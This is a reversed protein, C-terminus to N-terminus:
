DTPYVHITKEINYEDDYYYKKYEVSDETYTFKKGIRHGSGGGEEKTWPWWDFVEIALHRSTTDAPERANSVKGNFVVNVTECDIKLERFKDYDSDPPEPIKIKLEGTLRNNLDKVISCSVGMDKMIQAATETMLVPFTCVYEDVITGNPMRRQERYDYSYNVWVGHTDEKKQPQKFDRCNNTIHQWWEKNQWDDEEDDKNDASDHGSVDATLQAGDDRCASLMLVVLLGTQWGMRM